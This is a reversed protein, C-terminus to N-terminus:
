PRSIQDQSSSKGLLYGAITGLLGFMPAIQQGSYGATILFLGSTVLVSLTFARSIDQSWGIDKKFVIMTLLSVLVLGFALVGLSLYIILDTESKTRDVNVDTDPPPVGGNGTDDTGASEGCQILILLLMTTVIFVRIPWIMKGGGAETQTVYRGRM